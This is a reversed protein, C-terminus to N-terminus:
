LWIKVCSIMITFLREVNGIQQVSTCMYPNIVLCVFDNCNSCFDAYYPFTKKHLDCMSAPRQIKKWTIIAKWHHENMRTLQDKSSVFFNCSKCWTVFNCHVVGSLLALRCADLPNIQQTAIVRCTLSNTAVRCLKYTNWDDQLDDRRHLPNCVVLIVTSKWSQIIISQSLNKM